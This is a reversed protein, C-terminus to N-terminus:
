GFRGLGRRVATVAQDAGLRLGDDIGVEDALRAWFVSAASAAWRWADLQGSAPLPPILQREPLSGQATPRWLMPLMDYVPCLPLPRQDCLQLAANGLHMDSNGILAGYWYVRQLTLADEASIWGDRQLRTALQWWPADALGYFASSLAALSVQGRRGLSTTRDFRPSELFIMEGTELVRNDAAAIGHENLVRAALAEARLLSAWREAVPNGQAQSFKVILSERGHSLRLITTFKQQEGGPSSGVPEGALAAAALSPYVQERETPAIAGTSCDAAALARQLSAEGLVLDGTLDEGAHVLATIVHDGNWRTLDSPVNLVTALRHAFHRGLFGQPRLDDLFWPLDPFIGAAFQPAPMLAPLAHQPRLAFQGRGIAELSGLIEVQADAGIRYLPWASANAIQRRTAYVTARAAGYRQVQDGARAVQRSLTARSIGLSEQLEGARMAGRQLLTRILQSRQQASDNM